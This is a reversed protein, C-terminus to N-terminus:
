SSFIVRVLLTRCIYFGVLYYYYYLNNICMTLDPVAAGGRERIHTSGNSLVFLRIESVLIVIIIYFLYLSNFTYSYSFVGIGDCKGLIVLQHFTITNYNKEKIGQEQFQKISTGYLNLFATLLAYSTPASFFQPIATM